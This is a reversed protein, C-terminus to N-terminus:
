RCGPEGGPVERTGAGARDEFSEGPHGIEHWEILEWYEQGWEDGHLFPIGTTIFHAALGLCFLCSFLGFLYAKM